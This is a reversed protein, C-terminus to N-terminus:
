WYICLILNYSAPNSVLYQVLLFKRSTKKKTFKALQILVTSTFVRLIYDRWEDIFLLKAGGINVLIVTCCTYMCFQLILFIQWDPLWFSLKLMFHLYIDCCIDGNPSFEKIEDHIVYINRVQLNFFPRQTMQLPSKM